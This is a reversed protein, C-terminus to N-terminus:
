SDLVGSKHPAVVFSLDVPSYRISKLVKGTRKNYVIYRKTSEDYRYDPSDYGLEGKEFKARYWAVTERATEESDCLKSMNSEHIMSFIKDMPLGFSIGAGYVVYLIDGLADAVEILNQDKVAQKLEEVEEIILDLKLKVLGPDNKFLDPQPNDPIPLQFAKNFEKVKEFNTM